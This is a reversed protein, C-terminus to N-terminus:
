DNTKETDSPKTAQHLKDKTAELAQRAGEKTAAVAKDTQEGIRGMVKERESREAFPNSFLAAGREINMGAPIGLLAGVVLGTLLTYIKTKM